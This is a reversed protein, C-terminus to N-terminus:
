WNREEGVVREGIGKRFEKGRQHFNVLVMCDGASRSKPEEVRVDCGLKM